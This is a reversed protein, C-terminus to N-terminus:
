RPSCDEPKTRKALDAERKGAFGPVEKSEEQSAIVKKKQNAADQSTQLSRLAREFRRLGIGRNADGVGVWPPFVHEIAPNSPHLLEVRDVTGSPLAHHAGAKAAVERVVFPGEQCPNNLSSGTGHHTSLWAAIPIELMGSGRSQYPRRQHEEVKPVPFGVAPVAQHGRRLPHLPRHRLKERGAAAASVTITLKMGGSFDRAGARRGQGMGHWGGRACRRRPRGGRRRIRRSASRATGMPPRVRALPRKTGARAIARRSQPSSSSARAAATTSTTAAPM